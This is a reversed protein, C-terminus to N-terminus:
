MSKNQIVSWLQRCLYSGDSFIEFLLFFFFFFFSNTFPVRDKPVYCLRDLEENIFYTLTCLDPILVILYWVQSLIGILIPRM